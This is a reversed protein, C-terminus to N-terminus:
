LGKPSGQTMLTPMNLQYFQYDIFFDILTLLYCSLFFRIFFMVQFIMACEGLEKLRKRYMM